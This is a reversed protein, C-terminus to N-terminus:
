LKRAIVNNQKHKPGQLNDKRCPGKKNVTAPM